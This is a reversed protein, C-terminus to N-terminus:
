ELPISLLHREVDNTHPDNPYDKLMRRAEQQAENFRGMDVLSKVVIFAREPADASHPFRANGRRALELSLPPNTEALQHLKVMLSAESVLAAVDRRTLAAPAVDPGRTPVPAAGEPTTGGGPAGSKDGTRDGGRPGGRAVLAGMALVGLSGM